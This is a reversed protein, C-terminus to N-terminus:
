IPITDDDNSSEEAEALDEEVVAIKKQTTTEPIDLKLTNQAIYSHAEKEFNLKEENDSLEFVTNLYCCSILTFFVIKFNFLM